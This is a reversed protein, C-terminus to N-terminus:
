VAKWLTVYRQGGPVHPYGDPVRKFSRGSDVVRLGVQRCMRKMVAERVLLSSHNVSADPIEKYGQRWLKMRERLRLKFFGGFYLQAVGAPKLCQQIAKLYSALADISQLHQLVILSYVFDVSEEPLDITRGSGELLEFNQRGEARLFASVSDAEHHIDVGIARAFYCCAANLLRGGGYGIELACKREPEQILRCVAPTLIHVAFDWFGRVATQEISESADFWSQFPLPGEERAKRVARVYSQVHAEERREASDTM